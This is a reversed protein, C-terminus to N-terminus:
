LQDCHQARAPTPCAEQLLQGQAHMTEQRASPGHARPPVHEQVRVGPVAAFRRRQQQKNSSGSSSSCPLPVPEPVPVLEAAGSICCVGRQLLGHRRQAGGWVALLSVREQRPRQWGGDVRAPRHLMPVHLFPCWQSPDHHGAPQRDGSHRFCDMSDLYRAFIFFLSSFSLIGPLSSHKSFLISCSLFGPLSAHKSFLSSCGIMGPQCTICSLEGTISCMRLKSQFGKGNIACVICFSMSSAAERRASCASHLADLVDQQFCQVIRPLRHVSFNEHVLKLSKLLDSGEDSQRFASVLLAEPSQSFIGEEEQESHLTHFLPHTVNVWPMDLVGKDFSAPVIHACKLQLEVPKAVKFKCVRICREISTAAARNLSEWSELGTVIAEQRFIDCMSGAIRLYTDMSTPCMRLLIERECPLWDELANLSYEMFCIRVLSSHEALFGLQEEISLTSLEMLRTTMAVRARFTPVKAGLPYLKLITGFLVNICAAVDVQSSSTNNSTQPKSSSAPPAGQHKQELIASSSSSSSASYQKSKPSRKQQVAATSTPVMIASVVSSVPRKSRKMCPLSDHLLTTSLTHAPAWLKSANAAAAVANASPGHSQHHHHHNQHSSLLQQHTGMSTTMGLVQTTHTVLLSSGFFCFDYGERVQLNAAAKVWHKKAHETFFRKQLVMRLSAGLDPLLNHQLAAHKPPILARLPIHLPVTQQKHQQKAWQANPHLDGRKQQQPTALFRSRRGLRFQQRYMRKTMHVAHSPNGCMCDLVLHATWCSGSQQTDGQSISETQELFSCVSLYRNMEVEAGEVGDLIQRHLNHVIHTICPNSPCYNISPPPFSPQNISSSGKKQKQQQQPLPPPLLLSPSSSVFPAGGLGGTSSSRTDDLAPHSATDSDRHGAAAAEPSRIPYVIMASGVISPGSM